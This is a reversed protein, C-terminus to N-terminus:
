CKLYVTDLIVNPRKLSGSRERLSGNRGKFCTGRQVDESRKRCVFLLCRSENLQNMQVSTRSFVSQNPAVECMGGVDACAHSAPTEQEM